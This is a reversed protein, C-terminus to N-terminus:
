GMFGLDQVGFKSLNGFVAGPNAVGFWKALTAGLQDVSTTPLLSGNGIQVTSGDFNNDNANKRALKPVQGYVRGGAVAGGMVFHHGGWGHDTGDGNSTFTRGFDSATFATVKSRLGTHGAAELKGLTEDFYALAHDLRAMLEGHGTNQNDHTDFGGMQVFFVQRGVGLSSRAAIVRAVAQLQQALSNTAQGGNLTTYQLRANLGLLDTNIPNAAFAQTLLTEANVSRASVNGVDAMLVHPSRSVGPAGPGALGHSAINRLADHLATSGYVRGNTSGMVIPGSTGLQYQRVRNGALWVASGALSIAGYFGPQSNAPVFTDVLRGGWGVATGEPGLAQWTNQQDNHSFLKPPLKFQSSGAQGRSVATWQEKTLPQLLPGVNAVIALRHEVNFLRQAETLKPHLALALDAGTGARVLPLVGGLREPSGVAASAVPATGPAMLAIPQPAQNRVTAYADWSTADTPLVTNFADNGGALFVCVLAKYDSATQASAQGMTQLAAWAASGQLFHRRTIM